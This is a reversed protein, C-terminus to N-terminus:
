LDCAHVWHKSMYQWVARGKRCAIVFIMGITGRKTNWTLETCNEIVWSKTKFNSSTRLEVFDRNNLSHPKISPIMKLGKLGLILMCKRRVTRWTNRITSTPLSQMFILVNGRQHDNGTNELTTWYESLNICPMTNYESWMVISYFLM